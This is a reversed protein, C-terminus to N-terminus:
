EAGLDPVSTFPSELILAHPPHQTALWSAVASGLSRGFFIIRHPPIGRKEVLYRWAAEADRYSGKESAKGGSQGYGSYDFILCNLGLQHFIRLSDLRNSINGANGHLFLLTFGANPAPVFWGHLPTGSSSRFQVEEYSLGADKPTYVLTRTPIFVFSEQKLYLLLTLGLYVLAVITFLSWLM